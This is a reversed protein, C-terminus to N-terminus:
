VGSYSARTARECGSSAGPSSIQGQTINGYVKAATQTDAETTVLSCVGLHFHINDVNSASAAVGDLGPVDVAGGDVLNDGSVDALGTQQELLGCVCPDPKHITVVDACPGPVM